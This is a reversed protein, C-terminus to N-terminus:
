FGTNVHREGGPPPQPPPQPPPPTASAEGSGPRPSLRPGGAGPPGSVQRDGGHNWRPRSQSDGVPAAPACGLGLCPLAGAIHLASRAATSILRVPEDAQLTPRPTERMGNTLWPRCDLSATLSIRKGYVKRDTCM